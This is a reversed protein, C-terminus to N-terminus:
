KVYLVGKRRRLERLLLNKDILKAGMRAFAQAAALGIGQTSRPILVRKDKLDSFMNM